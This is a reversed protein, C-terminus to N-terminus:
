NKLVPLAFANFFIVIACLAGTPAWDEYNTM